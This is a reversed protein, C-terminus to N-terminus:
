KKLVYNRKKEITLYKPTNVQEMSKLIKWKLLYSLSELEAIRVDLLEKEITLNKKEVELLRINYWKTANINLTWVYYVWMIGIFILILIYTSTMWIKFQDRITKRESFPSYGKKMNPNVLQYILSYYYTILRNLKKQLEWNQM